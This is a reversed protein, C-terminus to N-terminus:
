ENLQNGCKKCFRAGILYEAGCKSCFYKQQVPPVDQEKKGLVQNANEKIEIIKQELSVIETENVAILELIPIVKQIDASNQKWDSYLCEGIDFKLKKIDDELTGIHTKIKTTELISSTKLNLATISKGISAKFSNNDNDM